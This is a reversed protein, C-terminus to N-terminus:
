EAGEFALLLQKKRNEVIQMFDGLTRCSTYTSRFLLHCSQGLCVLNNDEGNLKDDDLHHTTLRHTKFSGKGCLRCKFGDRKKIQYSRYKWDAPYSQKM